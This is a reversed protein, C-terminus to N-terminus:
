AARRARALGLVGIGMLWIAGPVPVASATVIQFLATGSAAFEFVGIPDLADAVISITVSDATFSTSIIGDLFGSDFLNESVLSFGIITEGPDLVINSVTFLATEFDAFGAETQDGTLTLLGGATLDISAGGGFGQPNSIEDAIGLDVLGAVDENLRELVRPGSSFSPLDLEARFDASIVAAQAAGFSFSAAAITALLRRM